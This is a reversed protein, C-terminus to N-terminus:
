HVDDIKAVVILVEDKLFDDLGASREEKPVLVDQIVNLALRMGRNHAYSASVSNHPSKRRTPDERTLSERRVETREAINRFLPLLAVEDESSEVALVEAVEVGYRAM